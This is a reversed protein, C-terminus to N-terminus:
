MTTASNLEQPQLVLTGIQKNAIMECEGYQCFNTLLRVILFLYFLQYM